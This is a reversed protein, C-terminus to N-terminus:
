PSSAQAIQADTLGLARLIGHAMIRYGHANMHVGDVTLLNPGPGAARRYAGVVERFPTNLDVFICRKERALDRMAHSYQILRLNEACNLDEYILTPSVLVVRVHAAQAADVMEAVKERYTELPVGAPLDGNPHRRHEQWDFFGHWVDNVGVNITVLDPKRDLVDRQFRAAMDVSRNGSIGANVVEIRQAPYADQLAKQILWVYGGPGGGGQTISDGMVVIRHVGQLPKPVDPAAWVALSAAAVAVALVYRM